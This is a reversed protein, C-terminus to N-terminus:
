FISTATEQNQSLSNAGKYVSSGFTYVGDFNHNSSVLERAWNPLIELVRGVSSAASFAESM